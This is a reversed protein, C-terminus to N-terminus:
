ISYLICLCVPHNEKVSIRNKKFEIALFLDLRKWGSLFVCIRRALISEKTVLSIERREETSTDKERLSCRRSTDAHFVNNRSGSRFHCEDWPHNKEYFFSLYGETADEWLPQMSCNNSLCSNSAKFCIM